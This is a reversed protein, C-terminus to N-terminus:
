RGGSWDAYKKLIQGLVALFRDVNSTCSGYLTAPGEGAFALGTTISAKHVDLGIYLAHM